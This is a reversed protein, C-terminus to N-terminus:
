FQALSGEARAHDLARNLAWTGALALLLTSGGLFAIEGWLTGLSAARFLALRMARLAHTLPFAEALLRIPEPLVEIPYFVGTLLGLVSSLMWALPEGRKVLIMVAAIFLGLAAGHAVALALLVGLAPWDAQGWDIGFFLGGGALYLAVEIVGLVLPWALGGLVILWAPVPMTLLAELTGSRQEARIANLTGLLATSLLNWFTVGVLVFAFFSGGYAALAPLGEGVVRGLFFYMWLGSAIGFLQLLFSFRYSRATYLDRRLFALFARGLDSM